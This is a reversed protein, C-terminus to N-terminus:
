QWKKLIVLFKSLNEHNKLIDIFKLSNFAPVSLPVLYYGLGQFFFLTFHYTVFQVVVFSRQCLITSLCIGFIHYRSTKYHTVARKSTKCNNIITLLLEDKLSLLSHIKSFHFLKNSKLFIYYTFYFLIIQLTFHLLALNQIQSYQKYTYFYHFCIISRPSDIKFVFFFEQLYKDLQHITLELKWCLWSTM